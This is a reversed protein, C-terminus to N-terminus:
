LAPNEPSALIKDGEIKVEIRSGDSIKIVSYYEVILRSKRQNLSRQIEWVIEDHFIKPVDPDIIIRKM